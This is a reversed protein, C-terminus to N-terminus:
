KISMTSIAKAREATLSKRNSRSRELLFTEISIVEASKPFKIVVWASANRLYFYDFPKEGRSDDPAKYIIGKNSKAKLLGDIQHPEVVSFSISNTTTQKLEFAGSLLPHRELWVRFTDTGFEAERKKKKKPLEPLM